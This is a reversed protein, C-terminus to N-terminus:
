IIVPAPQPPYVVTVNPAQQPAPPQAAYAPDAYGSVYVPYAYPVVVAGGGNRGGVHHGSRPVVLQPRGSAPFVANPTFRTINPNTAATGGPYVANGGGGVLVPTGARFQAFLAGTSLLAITCAALIRM